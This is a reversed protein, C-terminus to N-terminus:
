RRYSIKGYGYSQRDESYSGISEIEPNEILFKDVKDASDTIENKAEIAKDRSYKTISTILGTLVLPLIILTLEIPQRFNSKEDVYLTKIGQLIGVFFTCIIGSYAIIFDNRNIRQNLTNINDELQLSVESLNHKKTITGMKTCSYFFADDIYHIKTGVLNKQERKSSGTEMLGEILM